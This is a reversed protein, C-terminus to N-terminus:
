APGTRGRMEAGPELPDLPVLRACAVHVEHYEAPTRVDILDVPRRRGQFRQHLETATVTRVGM